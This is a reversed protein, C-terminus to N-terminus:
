VLHHSLALYILEIWVFNLTIQFHIAINCSDRKKMTNSGITTEISRLLRAINPGICIGALRSADNKGKEENMQDETNTRHVDSQTTRLM